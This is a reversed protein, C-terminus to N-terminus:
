SLVELKSLVAELNSSKKAEQFDAKSHGASSYALV